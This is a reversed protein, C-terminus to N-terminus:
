RVLLMLGSEKGEVATLKGSGKLWAVKIVGPEESDAAAYAGKPQLKGNVSLSQVTVDGALDLTAGDYVDLAGTGLTAGSTVSITGEKLVTGGAYSNATNVKQIVLTGDNEKILAGAGSIPAKITHLYTWETDAYPKAPIDFVCDGDLAIAGTMTVACNKKPADSLTEGHIRLRGNTVKGVTLPYAFIMASGEFCLTADGYGEAGLTVPNTTLGFAKDNQAKACGRRILVSGSFDSKANSLLIPGNDPSDLQNDFTVNGAGGIKATISISYTRDYSDDTTNILLLDDKLAIPATTGIQIRSRAANNSVVAAGPGTGDQDFAIPGLDDASTGKVTLDALVTKGLDLILSGITVGDSNDQTVNNKKTSSFYAVAGQENPVGTGNWGPRGNSSWVGNAGKGEDDAGYWESAQSRSISGSDAGPVLSTEEALGEAPCLVGGAILGGMAVIASIRNELGDFM